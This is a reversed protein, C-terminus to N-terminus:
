RRSFFSAFGEHQFPKKASSQIPRVPRIGQPTSYRFSESFSLRPTTDREQFPSYSMKTSLEKNQATLRNIKDLLHKQLQAQHKLKIELSTHLTQLAGQLVQFLKEVIAESTKRMQRTPDLGAMLVENPCNHKLDLFGGSGGCNCVEGCEAKCRECYLCKCQRLYRPKERFCMSCPLEIDM